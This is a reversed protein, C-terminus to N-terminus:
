PQAVVALLGGAELSVPPLASFFVELSSLPLASFFLNPPLVSSAIANAFRTAVHRQVDSHEDYTEAAGDFRRAITLQIDDKQHCSIYVSPRM